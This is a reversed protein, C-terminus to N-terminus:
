ADDCTTVELSFQKDFDETTGYQFPQFTYPTGDTTSNQMCMFDTNDISNANDGILDM